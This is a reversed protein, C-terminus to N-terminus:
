ATAWAGNHRTLGHRLLTRLNLAASRTRLWAHNKTVGRYRLKVRRGHQTALHAVTREVNSRTPYDRQYEATTAQARAARLLDEHPHITMSRGTKATTCRPRLPCTACLAGFTVNRHPSMPRTHGAPCTVDGTTHDITFDDLTFGGTVPPTLPKPKIVVDHGADRYAARAEGTGYASDGYVTLGRGHTADPDPDHHTGGAPATLDAAHPPGVLDTLSTDPDPRSALDTTSAASQALDGRPRLVLDTGAAPQADAPDSTVEADDLDPAADSAVTTAADAPDYEPGNVGTHLDGVEAPGVEAAAADATDTDTDTDATDTSTQDTTTPDTADARDHFRDRNAMRVGVAADTHDEGTAMTMEADTILGTEPETAVHGRFGDKRQSRSKRAHRTQTDVTSIVRDKAVKRAIVWRGDTGDSGQAPEVDQGAVLALLGLADAAAAEREPAEPGTLRELVALADNVLDSVLQRKADPDDWDIDPKGPQSYDLRCVQAIVGAADPVVRAVKRMAAVLQTVTDQTAVADDFITSDIARKRRGRLIGTEAIVQAVKDFVRDPRDSKAIRKRWYVLTSADFSTQTLSRGTAVKWRIDFCLAEATQRDSLDYLEKLVLVSGVLDAPLSPRGTVAPFLDAIFSDDFLECRHEALFAFVSGAAVLDGAIMEADWLQRDRRTMGQVGLDDWGVVLL